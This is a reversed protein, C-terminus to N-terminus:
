MNEQEQVWAQLRQDLSYIDMNKYGNELGGVLLITDQHNKIGASFGFSFRAGPVTGAIYPQSWHIEKM